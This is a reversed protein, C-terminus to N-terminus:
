RLAFEFLIPTFSGATFRIRVRRATVPPFRVTRPTWATGLMRGLYPLSWRSGEANGTFFPVWRSGALSELTYGKVRGGFESLSAERFTRTTGLDLELWQSAMPTGIAAQWATQPNGDVAKAAAYDPSWATSARAVANLALNAGTPAPPAFVEFEKLIPTFEGELYRLRLRTTIVPAFDFSVPLDDIGTGTFVPRYNRGDFAELAFRRTRAGFEALTVRGIRTPTPLRLEIWQDAFRTGLAAQWNTGLLGDFAFSPAQAADWQSSAVFQRGPALALNPGSQNFVLVRRLAEIRDSGAFLTPCLWGGEDFENWAYMLVTQAPAAAAHTTTFRLGQVLHNAVEEATPPQAWGSTQYTHWPTVTVIRPRPDWGTTVWPVMPFRAARASEWGSLGRAALRIFTEGDGGFTAYASVADMGLADADAPSGMLVLYPNGTGSRRSRARLDSIFKPTLGDKSFYYLLPRTGGVREYSPHRFFDRVLTAPDPNPNVNLILCFRVLRKLPSALYRERAQALGTNAPYYCFAFYNIGAQAAFQIERDIIAQTTGNASVTGDSGVRAFFPLREHFVPPRLTQEVVRGVNNGAGTWADWRIAGVRPRGYACAAIM